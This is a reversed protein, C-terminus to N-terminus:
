RAASPAPPSSGAMPTVTCTITSASTEPTSKVQLGTLPSGLM